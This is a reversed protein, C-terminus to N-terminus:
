EGLVALQAPLARGLKQYERELAAIILRIDIPEADTAASNGAATLVANRIQGGSLDCYGALSKCLADGPSRAGLHSQWLRLREEFAPLPFEVVVDIRRTFAGDIRERSNTTLIVVGPHNEIRTLLFNTLMNAYREGTQKADTRRGFLSDAEDFLLVVDAAAAHDLLAGLNKESEGIYKNMISALDARYLPAGLVTAVYSAALTKGTGSEGVFLARLGTNRSAQLTIGLGDWISERRRVRAIFQDIAAEVMAPLVVAERTVTRWVPQALLRLQEASLIKRARAIHQLGLPEEAQQAALTANRAVQAIATGSLLASETVQNVLDPDHIHMSWITRREAEDPLSLEIELLNRGSITGDTGALVAFPMPTASDPISWTEGASLVPRLSCFWQGYRCALTFSRSETWIHSPVEVCTLGLIEGLEAAMLARGSGPHGRIIVGRIDGKTLLTALHPLQRRLQRPLLHREGPALRSCGPWLTQRDCLVSWLTPAMHLTRLPLPADGELTLAHVQVLRLDNVDLAGPIERGFLLDCIALCLHVSPRAHAEPAQLESLALNILYDNEAEGALALLFAEPLELALDTIFRGMTGQRLPWVKLQRELLETWPLKANSGILTVAAQYLMDPMQDNGPM